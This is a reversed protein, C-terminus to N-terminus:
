FYKYPMIEQLSILKCVTIIRISMELVMALAQRLCLYYSQISEVILLVPVCTSKYM